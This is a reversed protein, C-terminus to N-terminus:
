TGQRMASRAGKPGAVRASFSGNAEQEIVVPLYRTL